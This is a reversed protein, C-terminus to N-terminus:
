KYNDYYRPMNSMLELTQLFMTNNSRNHDQQQLMFLLDNKIQSPFYMSKQLIKFYKIRSLFIEFKM